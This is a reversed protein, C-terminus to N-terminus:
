FPLDQPDISAAVSVPATAVSSIGFLRDLDRSVGEQKAAKVKGGGGGKGDSIAWTEYTENPNKRDAEHSCYVTIENGSLDQYGSNNPDLASLSTGNWGIAELQGKAFKEYTNETLYVRCRRKYQETTPETAGTVPDVSALVEFVIEFFPTRKENQSEGFGQEVIRAKYTGKAYTAAM